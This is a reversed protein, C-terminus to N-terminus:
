GTTSYDIARDILRQRNLLLNIWDAPSRSNRRAPTFGRPVGQIRGGSLWFNPGHLEAACSGLRHGEPRREDDDDDNRKKERHNKPKSYHVSSRFEGLWAILPTPGAGVAQAM